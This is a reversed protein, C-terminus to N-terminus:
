NFLLKGIYGYTFVTEGITAGGSRRQGHNEFSVINQVIDSLKLTFKLKEPKM